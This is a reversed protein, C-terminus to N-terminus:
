ARRAQRRLLGPRGGPPGRGRDGWRGPVLRHRHVCDGPQGPEQGRRSDARRGPGHRGCRQPRPPHRVRRRRLPLRPGHRPRGPRPRRRHAPAPRRRGPPGRRQQRGPLRRPRAHDPRIAVWRPRGAGPVGRVDRPQTAADPCRDPRADRRGPLGGREPPRHVGPGRVAPRPRVGRRRVHQRHRAARPDARRDRGVPRPAPRRHPQRRGLRGGRPLSQGAPREARGRHLDARQARRGVDRCRDRRAGVAGPLPRCPHRPRDPAHAARVDPRRVEIAINDCAILGGLRETISELVTGVDLTTLISETIQLLERQSRVQRELAASQERLRETTDANAMAQAAFSAYIVLLRLDDDRSSTCASSPCCSSASSAPGRVADARPADVRRPRGRDGPHHEGAPGEAADPLNQAVRHEAVWGTIGEGVKVRLQDPTEDVYEGVQGQMAVPILDDGVLRYVRVNHYDILQRLETAIALGIDRVSTLRNLRAGLQQISQLQAAWTAMQQFNQATRIAVSAQTALAASRRSSTRRDLRAARRSLRRPPRAAGHRGDAAGHVATDFGEQVVAARVGAGRPDDRYGVSSLPRRAAVAAAPLSREPVDRVADLYAGSLGRSVEAAIQGDPRRLFVAARDGEFLVM